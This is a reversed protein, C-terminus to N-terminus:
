TTWTYLQVILIKRVNPLTKKRSCAPSGHLKKIPYLDWVSFLVFFVSLVTCV